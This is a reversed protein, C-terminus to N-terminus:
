CNPPCIHIKIEKEKKTPEVKQSNNQAFVNTMKYSHVIVGPLM